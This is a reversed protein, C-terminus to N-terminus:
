YFTDLKRVPPPEGSVSSSTSDHGLSSGLKTSQWPSTSTMTEKGKLNNDFHTQDYLFSFILPHVLLSCAQVIVSLFTMGRYNKRTQERLHNSNAPSSEPHFSCTRKPDLLSLSLSSAVWRLTYSEPHRDNRGKCVTHVVQRLLMNPMTQIRQKKGGIHVIVYSIM